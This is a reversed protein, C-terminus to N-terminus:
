PFEYRKVIYITKDRLVAVCGRHYGQNFDQGWYITENPGVSRDMEYDIYNKNLDFSGFVQEIARGFVGPAGIASWTQDVGGIPVAFRDDVIAHM